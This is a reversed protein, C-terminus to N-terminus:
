SSKGEYLLNVKKIVTQLVEVPVNSLLRTNVENSVEGYNIDKVIHPVAEKPRANCIKLHKNM